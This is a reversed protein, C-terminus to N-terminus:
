YRGDRVPEALLEGRRLGHCGWRTGPLRVRGHVLVQQDCEVTRRGRFAREVV